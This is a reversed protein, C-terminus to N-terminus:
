PELTTRIFAKLADTIEVLLAPSTKTEDDKKVHRLRHEYAM